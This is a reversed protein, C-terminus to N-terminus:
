FCNFPANVLSRMQDDPTFAIRQLSSQHAEILHFNGIGHITVEDRDIVHRTIIKAMSDLFLHALEVSSHTYEALDDDILKDHLGAPQDGAEYQMRYSMRPPYLTQEGNLPNEQIYEPHKHSVFTGLGPLNVPVQEIAAQAMIKQLASLLTACQHSDAHCSKQLENLFEKHDM